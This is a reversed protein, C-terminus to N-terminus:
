GLYGRSCLSVPNVSSPGPHPHHHSRMMSLLMRATMNRRKPEADLKDRCYPCSDSDEFWKKICHNGFVHKCKPLRLPAENVGEPTEVGYDNYCIVCAIFWDAKNDLLLLSLMLTPMSRESDPLEAISISELSELAKKSAVMKTAASGRLTQVQRAIEADDPTRSGHMSIFQLLDEPDLDHDDDEGFEGASYRSM